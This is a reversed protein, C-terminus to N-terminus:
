PFRGSNLKRLWHRNFALGLAPSAGHYRLNNVKSPSAGVGDALAAITGPVETGIILAVYKAVACNSFELSTSALV